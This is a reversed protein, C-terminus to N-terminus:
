WRANYFYLGIGSEERQGTFRYPTGVTGGGRRTGYPYYRQTTTSAGTTNMASALHDGHIYSVQGAPTRKAVRLGGLYYYSTGASNAWEYWEGMYCTTPTIVTGKVRNGEGDYVFSASGIRDREDSPERAGWGEPPVSGGSAWM